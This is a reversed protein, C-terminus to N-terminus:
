LEDHSEIYHVKEYPISVNVLFEEMLKTSLRYWALGVDDRVMQVRPPRIFKDFPYTVYQPPMKYVAQYYIDSQNQRYHHLHDNM